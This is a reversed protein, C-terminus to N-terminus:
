LSMSFTMRPVIEGPNHNNNSILLNVVTKNLTPTGKTQHKTLMTNIKIHERNTGRDKGSGLDKNNIQKNRSLEVLMMDLNKTKIESYGM